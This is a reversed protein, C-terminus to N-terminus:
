IGWNLKKFYKGPGVFNDFHGHEIKVIAGDQEHLVVGSEFEYITCEHRFYRLTIGNSTLKAARKWAKANSGNNVYGQKADFLSKAYTDYPLATPNQKVWDAIIKTCDETTIKSM